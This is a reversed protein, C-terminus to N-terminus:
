VQGYMGRKLLVILLSNMSLHEKQAVFAIQEYMSKPISCKKIVREESYISPDFFISQPNDTGKKANCSACCVRLNDDENSGGLFRPVVHDLDFGSEECSKGCIWCKSGDRSSIRVRKQQSFKTKSM